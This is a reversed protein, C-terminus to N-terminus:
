LQEGLKSFNQQIEDKSIQQHIEQKLFGSLVKYKKILLHRDDSKGDDFLGLELIDRNSQYDGFIKKCKNSLMKESDSQLKPSLRSISKALDIAPYHGQESLDRTLVIHGDLVARACDVVPDNFDDSEVLVTFVASITGAEKFNGCREILQPLANFVSPTYGRVTPPEGRALGIERLATAFRTVSDMTFFVDKGCKSFHEAISMATYAAQVRMLPSDEATSAIVISKKLGEPGLTDNIFEEVERGREGILAVVNIDADVQHCISSLLVSKGVGSGAFLGVRQGQGLTLCSDIAKIGTHLRHQIKARTLPSIAEPSFSTKTISTSLAKGDIPEGFADLVRGLMSNGVRFQLNKNLFKVKDGQCIGLNSKFLMVKALNGDFGIVEAPIAAARKGSPIIECQEGVFSSPCKVELLQGYSRVVSGFMKSGELSEISDLLTDLFATKM